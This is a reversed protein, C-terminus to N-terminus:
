HMFFLVLSKEIHNKLEIQETELSNIQTLLANQNKISMSITTEMEKNSYSMKSLERKLNEESEEFSKQVQTLKFEKSQIQEQAKSINQRLKSMIKSNQILEASAESLLREKEDKRSQIKELENM